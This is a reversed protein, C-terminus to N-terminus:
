PLISHTATAMAITTGQDDIANAEVVALRKGVKVVRARARLLGSKAPALFNVNMQAAANFRGDAHVLAAVAQGMASDMLAMVVGGHLVGYPNYHAPDIVYEWTVGGDATARPVFPLPGQPRDLVLAFPTAPPLKRDSM